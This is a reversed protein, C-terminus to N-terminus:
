HSTRQQQTAQVAAPLHAEETEVSTKVGGQRDEYPKTAQKCLEGGYGTPSYEVKGGKLYKVTIM